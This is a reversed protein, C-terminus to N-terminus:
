DINQLILGGFKILFHSGLAMQLICDSVLDMFLISEQISEYIFRLEISIHKYTYIYINFRLEKTFRKM